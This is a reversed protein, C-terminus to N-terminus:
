LLVCASALGTSSIHHKSPTFLVRHVSPLGLKAQKYLQSHLAQLDRQSFWVWSSPSDGPGEKQSSSISLGSRVIEAPYHWWQQNTNAIGLEVSSSQQVDIFHKCTPAAGVALRLQVALKWVFCIPTSGFLRELCTWMGQIKENGGM